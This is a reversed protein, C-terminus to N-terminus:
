SCYWSPPFVWELLTTKLEQWKTISGSPLEALWLTAGGALFFPILWLTIADQNLGPIKYSKYIGVINLINKNADAIAHGTFIREFEIIIDDYQHHWVIDQIATPTSYYFM